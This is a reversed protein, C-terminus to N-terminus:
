CACNDRDASRLLSTRFNDMNEATTQIKAQKLPPPLALASSIGGKGLRAGKEYRLSAGKKVDLFLLRSLNTNKM